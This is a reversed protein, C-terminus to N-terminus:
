RRRKKLIGLVSKAGVATVAVPTFGALTRFGSTLSPTGAPPKAAVGAGVASAVGIGVLGTAAKRFPKFYDKKRPM